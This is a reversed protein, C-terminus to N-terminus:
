EVVELDDTAPGRLVKGRSDFRSGHCPCDWTEEAFNWSVICGLHTCVASCEFFSGYPDRHIAHKGLGSRIVAAGGPAIDDKSPLEGPTVWEALSTIVEANERVYEAAAHRTIRSPDYLQEWTNERGAILDPILMAAIMSHTMGHGSDGTVIYVNQEVNDRGIFALSDSPEEVMGSWRYRVDEIPFRERTWRELWELHYREDESQGQRHDEGGVILIDTGLPHKSTWGSKLRVYHYPDLTDWYLARPIADWPITAGIAYSRYPGQRAHITLNDHIPTNTALVVANAQVTHGDRTEVFPRAGGTTDKVRTNTYIEGGMRMIAETLGNIFRLPNFQGQNPFRLCPGTDFTRIPACRLAEVPCGARQAAAHERQLEGKPEAPPVFLYGDLRTFECDFQERHTIQEILDVARVHSEYALRSGSEGFLAELEHFRDDLAFSLHATTRSTEGGAVLGAELIVVSRGEQLLRYATALGALGAGVVCVDTQLDSNLPSYRQVDEQDM